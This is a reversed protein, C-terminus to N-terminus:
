RVFLTEGFKMVVFEDDDLQAEKLAEKLYIPPEALPEDALQFTGWHM